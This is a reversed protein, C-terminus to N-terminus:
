SVEDRNAFTEAEPTDGFPEPDPLGERSLLIALPRLVPFQGFIIMAAVMIPVSLFMGPIGWVAGWCALSLIIGFSSVRLTRGTLLPDIINGIVFQMIATIAFIAFTPGPEGLEIYAVLTVLFTAVISGVSPIFNLVFTLIGLAVALKLGFSLCVMGVLVGTVSGVLTKVLLYYNVNHMISSIVKRVHEARAPDGMLNNLKAKFWIREVFLFGVFLIVMVTASMLNGAQGAITRLYGSFDISRVSRLISAEIDEGMWAFLAAIAAPTRESIQLTTTLVPNVQSLLISSLVLLSASILALGGLSALWNPIRVPGIHQRAIFNIVDSTLSFIIIAVVLTILLFRAQVLVDVTVAFAIIVLAIAQITGTNWKKKPVQSSAQASVNSGHETLKGDM